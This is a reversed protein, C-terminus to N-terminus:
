DAFSAKSLSSMPPQDEPPAYRRLGAAQYSATTDLTSSMLIAAQTSFLM